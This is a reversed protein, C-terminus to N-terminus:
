PDTELAPHVVAEATTDVLLLLPEYETPIFNQPAAM